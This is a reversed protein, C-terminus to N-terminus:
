FQEHTETEDLPATQFAALMNAGDQTSTLSEEVSKVFNGFDKDHLLRALYSLTDQTRRREDSETNQAAEASAPRQKEVVQFRRRGNLDLLEDFFENCLAISPFALVISGTQNRTSVFLLNRRKTCRSATNTSKKKPFVRIRVRFHRIEVGGVCPTALITTTNSSTNNAGDVTANEWGRDKTHRYVKVPWGYTTATATDSNPTSM